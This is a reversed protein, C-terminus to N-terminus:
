PALAAIAALDWEHLDPRDGCIWLRRSDPSWAALYDRFAIPPTLTLRLEGTSTDRLEIAGEGVALALTRNDPSVVLWPRPLRQVHVPWRGTEHWTATDFRRLTSTDVLWLARGDPSFRGACEPAVPGLDIAAGGARLRVTGRQSQQDVVFVREAADDTVGRKETRTMATDFWPVPSWPARAPADHVRIKMDYFFLRDGHASNALVRWGPVDLIIEEPGFVPHEGSHDIARRYVGSALSSYVLADGRATFALSPAYNEARPARATARHAATDWLSLGRDDIAAVVRGDPGAALMAVDGTSIVRPEALEDAFDHWVVPATWGIIAAGAAEPTCLLRRGDHALALNREALRLRLEVRGRALSWVALTDDKALALLRGGDAFFLRRLGRGPESLLQLPAGDAAALLEATNADDARVLALARSDATWAAPYLAYAADRRWLERGDDTALVVVRTAGVLALRRGAPDVSIKDPSFDLTALVRAAEGSPAPHARVVRDTGVTFWGSGDPALALAVFGAASRWVPAGGGAPWVLATTAETHLLYNAAFWRSQHDFAVETPLMAPGDAFAGRERADADVVRLDGGRLQDAHVLRTFDGDAAIWLRGPLRPLTRLREVDGLAAAAALASRAVVGPRLNAAARAATLAATRRGSWDSARARASQDLLSDALAAALARNQRALVFTGTALAAALAVALTAVLPNRKAWGWVLGAASPPRARVPRGAVWAELDAALAAASPYREAPSAAIAQGCVAVLDRPFGRFTAPPAPAPPPPEGTLLTHLIAGLGYVDAAVTAERAGASLVEPAVYGPTGYVLQPRTLPDAGPHTQKALGFDGVYPRDADDFFINGPKLDRHLVGRDHAHQVARALTAVLTAAARPDTRYRAARDALTGGGCLKMTFFPLGDHEGVDLLPLITPHDLAAVHGAELRFRARSEASAAEHPRLIKLAVERAPEHQRARYVIGTAGRGLEALIAYGPLPFLGAGHDAAPALADALACRPCWAASDPAVALATGCTPCAASM